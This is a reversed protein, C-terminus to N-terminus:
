LQLGWLVARDRALATMFRSLDSLRVDIDAAPIGNWIATDYDQRAFHLDKGARYCDTMYLTELLEAHREKTSARMAWYKM